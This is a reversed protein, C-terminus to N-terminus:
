SDGAPGMVGELVHALDILEFPVCPPRSPVHAGVLQVLMSILGSLLSALAVGPRMSGSTTNRALSSGMLLNVPIVTTGIVALAVEAAGEPISPLLGALLNPPLGMGFLTVAFCVIMLMVVASLLLSIRETGGGFMLLALTLAGLGLNILQRAAFAATSDEDAKEIRGLDGSTCNVASLNRAPPPLLLIDVAAMAGAFNNCEYLFNGVVVFVAFCVRLVVARGTLTRRRVAEGLTCGAALTLRASGEQMIWAVCAAIIVCWFLATRYDAGAKSCMTVTGPGITSATLVTWM